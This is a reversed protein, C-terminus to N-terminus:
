IRSRRPFKHFGEERLVREVTRVSIEIGEESLCGTIEGSSMDHM